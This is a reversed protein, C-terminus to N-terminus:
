PRGHDQARVFLAIPSVPISERTNVDIGQVRARSLAASSERSCRPSNSQHATKGCPRSSRFESPCGPNPSAWRRSRPRWDLVAAFNIWFSVPKRSVLPKRPRSHLSGRDRCPRGMSGAARAPAAVCMAIGGKARQQSDDRHGSIVERFDLLALGGSGDAEFARESYNHPFAATFPTPWSSKM